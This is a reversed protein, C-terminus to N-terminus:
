MEVAAPGPSFARCAAVDVDVFAYEVHANPNGLVPNLYNAYLRMGFDIGTREIFLAPRVHFFLLLAIGLSLALSFVWSALTVALAKTLGERCSRPEDTEKPAPNSRVPEM